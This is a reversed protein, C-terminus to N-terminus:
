GEGSLQRSIKELARHLRYSITKQPIGLTRGIACQTYGYILNLWTIQLENENLCTRATGYVGLVTRLDVLTALAVGDGKEAMAEVKTLNCILMKLMEINQYDAKYILNDNGTRRNIAGM